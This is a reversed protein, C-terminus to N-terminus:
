CRWGAPDLVALVPAVLLTLSIFSVDAVVVDVPESGVDALTLDM